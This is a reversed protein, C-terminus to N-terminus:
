QLAMMGHTLIQPPSLHATRSSEALSPQDRSPESLCNSNAAPYTLQPSVSRLQSLQNTQRQEMHDRMRWCALGLPNWSCCSSLNKLACTNRLDGSIDCKCSDQHGFCNVHSLVTHCASGFPISVPLCSYISVIVIILGNCCDDFM